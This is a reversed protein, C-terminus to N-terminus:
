PLSAAKEDALDQASQAIGGNIAYDHHDIALTKEGYLRLYVFTEDRAPLWHEGIKQYQRVFDARTIWFSLSRAPHGAIRVIAYDEADIWVKGEFLYKDSWRPHANVVLCHYRGVDQTGLLNLEYNLTGISSDRHARGSTTESESEILPKLVLDRVLTSGKESETVFTKHGPAQYEVRVVEEAYVKGKDSADDYRREASYRQLQIERVRNHQLLKTFLEVGTMNQFPAQLPTHAEPAAGPRSKDAALGEVSCIGTDRYRDPNTKDLSAPNEYASEM